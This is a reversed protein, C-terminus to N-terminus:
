LSRALRRQVRNAEYTVVGGTVMLLFLGVLVRVLTGAAKMAFSVVLGSVVVGGVGLIGARVAIGKATDRLSMPQENM